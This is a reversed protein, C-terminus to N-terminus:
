YRPKPNVNLTQTKTQVISILYVSAFNSTNNPTFVIVHFNIIFASFLWGM